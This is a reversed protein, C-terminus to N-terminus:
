SAASATTTLSPAVRLAGLGAIVRRLAAAHGTKGSGALALCRAREAETRLDQHRALAHVTALTVYRDRM